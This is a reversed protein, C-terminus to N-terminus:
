ESCNSPRKCLEPLNKPLIIAIIEAHTVEAKQEGKKILTLAKESEKNFKQSLNKVLCYNKKEKEKMTELGISLITLNTLMRASEININNVPVHLEGLIKNHSELKKDFEKSAKLLKKHEKEYKNKKEASENYSKYLYYGCGALASCTLFGFVLKEKSSFNQTHDHHHFVHKDSSSEASRSLQAFSFFFLLLAQVYIRKKILM